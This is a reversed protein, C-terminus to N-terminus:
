CSAIAGIRYFRVSIGLSTRLVKQPISSSQCWPLKSFLGLQSGTLRVSETDSIKLMLWELIQDMTGWCRPVGRKLILDFWTTM